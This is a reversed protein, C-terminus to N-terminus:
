RVIARCVGREPESQTAPQGLRNRMHYATASQIVKSFDNM